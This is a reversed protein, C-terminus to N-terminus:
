ESVKIVNELGRGKIEVITLTKAEYDVKVINNNPDILKLEYIWVDDDEELEVRIIRGNLQKAVVKQLESYPQILGQQVAHMVDDHDEEIEVEISGQPLDLMKDQDHHHAQANNILLLSLIIAIPLTSIKNM